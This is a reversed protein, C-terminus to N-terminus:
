LRIGGRMPVPLSNKRDQRLATKTFLRKSKKRSIVKRRAM